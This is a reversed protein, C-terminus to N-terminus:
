IDWRVTAGIANTETWMFPLKVNARLNLKGTTSNQCGAPADVNRGIGNDVMTSRLEGTITVVGMIGRFASPM